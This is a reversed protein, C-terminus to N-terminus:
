DLSGARFLKACATFEQATLSYRAARTTLESAREPNLLEQDDAVSTAGSALIRSFSAARDLAVGFDGHFLGRLIQDALEKIEHPGTPNVAGTVAADITPLTEIGRQFLLSTGVADQQIVARLLYIRWLAGPLSSASSRSWLEALADIGHKDTYAVIRDVVAPDDSNRAGDILAHATDHAARMIQAPDQGGEFTDFKDGSYQTPKHFNDAM